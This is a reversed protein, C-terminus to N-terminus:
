YDFSEEQLLLKEFEEKSIPKSFLYGQGYDCNNTRLFELQEKTEIGEAVIELKLRAILNIAYEVIVKDEGVKSINRIFERDLKVVDIPLKKLYTLSSYGTGFDDLAIKVNMERIENLVKISSELDEMLATETVELQIEDCNVKTQSLLDRIENVFGKSTVRKGSINISMKVKPYGLEEWQQKQMLATKIIWKEIDFILGSEEAVPIFEMPLIMGRKPHFWRILVELGILKNTNLNIIPQYVLKFEENDVARRLDSVMKIQELSKEQMQALYFCYNDKMKKKIYYMAIDSNKLLLSLNEGHEPYIAIGISFSIFFEQNDLVWPKRLYILLEQIKTIIDQRNKIDQFVIVFEDGSLRAAFDPAKVEKILTKSIYQLLLDGAAHGLSDNIHKFNDIDMNILAFKRKLGSKENVSILRNIKEEFLFRNPLETLMDYFALSNLRDENIKQQTIDTHSGAIRLVKGEQNRIAKAKSLMWKYEGNKCIMRYTSQYSGAKSLIYNNIESIAQNKDEPHLLNVWSDFTNKVQDDKYGLYNKWKPSFYLINKKADWDWIGCNAGEVALEYREESIILSNRHTEIEEFQQRLEEELAVLEEHNSNLEEFNIAIKEVAKRFLILRRFVLSFILIMTIFVFAWGKYTELKQYLQVDTIIKALLQDSLLIWLSGIIGYIVSIRLAEYYPNIEYQGELYKNIDNDIQANIEEHKNLKKLFDLLLIVVSKFLRVL